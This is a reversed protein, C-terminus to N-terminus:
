FYDNLLAFEVLHKGNSNIKGKGYRGICEPYDHHGSEIKANMDGAIILIDRRNIGNVRNNLAGYFERINEDKESVELTPAYTSIFKLNKNHKELKITVVCIKETIEKYDVKLDKRVIIGVRHHRKDDPGTYFLEYTDKDDKSRIEIVGTGKLHHEQIGM